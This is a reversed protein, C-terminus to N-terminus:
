SQFPEPFSTVADLVEQRILFQNEMAGSFIMRRVDTGSFGIKNGQDHGCNESFSFTECGRCYSAANFKMLEIGLDPFAECNKQADFEGYYNGVGAHDRGIIFHSAGFNKRMIAHLLAERPGAYQMEYNLPAVLVREKPYHSNVLADYSKVIVDDNFDGSKKKGIVPNIFLGETADLAKMHMFEHGRHPVNRTQFATVTKWGAKKFHERTEAPCLVRHAFPLNYPFVKVFEGSLYLNGNRLFKAFGPHSTDETQFIKRGTYVPDITFKQNIKLIAIPGSADKLIIEDGDMLQRYNEQGIPLMIPIPWITGNPLRQEKLITEIENSTNFGKLPSYVGTSVLRAVTRISGPVDVHQFGSFESSISINEEPISILSGGHPNPIM